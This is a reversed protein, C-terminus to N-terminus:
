VCVCVYVCVCAFVIETQKDADVVLAFVFMGVNLWGISLTLLIHGNECLPSGM